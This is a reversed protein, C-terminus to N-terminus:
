EKEEFHNWFLYNHTRTKCCQKSFQNLFRDKNKIFVKKDDKIIRKVGNMARM